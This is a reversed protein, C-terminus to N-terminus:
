YGSGDVYSLIRQVLQIDSPRITVRRAHLTCLYACEYTQVMYAEAAEQLAQLGFGQFRLDQVGTVRYAIERVLRQFPLKPILLGTSSQLRKIERIVKPIRRPTPAKRRSPGSPRSVRNPQRGQRPNRSSSTPRNRGTPERRPGDSDDDPQPRESLSEASVPEHNIRNAVNSPSSGSSSSSSALEEDRRAPTESTARRERARIRRQDIWDGLIEGRSEEREVLRDSVESGERRRGTSSVVSGERIRGTSSVVSGERSLSSVSGLSRPVPPSQRHDLMRRWSANSRVSPSPSPPPRGQTPVPSRRLSPIGVRRRGISGDSVDEDPTM